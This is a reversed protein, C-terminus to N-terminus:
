WCKAWKHSGSQTTSCTAVSSIKEKIWDFKPKLKTARQKGNKKCCKGGDKESNSHLGNIVVNGEVNTALIPGGSDGNCARQPTDADHIFYHDSQWDTDYDMSRLVTGATTDTSNVMGAGFLSHPHILNGVSLRLLNQTSFSLNSTIVVVALDDNTDGSGSYNPHIHVRVSVNNWSLGRFDKINDLTTDFSGVGFSDVCHASTLFAKTAIAAGTCLPIGKSFFLVGRTTHNTGTAAAIALEKGGLDSAALKSEEDSLFKLYAARGERFQEAAACTAVTDVGAFSSLLSDESLMANLADLDIAHGECVISPGDFSVQHSDAEATAESM